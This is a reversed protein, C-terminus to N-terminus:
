ATEKTAECVEIQQGILKEVLSDLNKIASKVNAEMEAVQRGTLALVKRRSDIMRQVEMPAPGGRVTHMKVFNAVNVSMKVDGETVKLSLGSVEEAVERLMEATLDKPNLENEVIKRVLAGVIKHATRFPVNYKQFLIRVLETFTSFILNPNELNQIPECMVILKSLIRLAERTKAFSEWLKPTVEEFDLNYGSSLSKLALACTTFNGIVHSMRARVVELVDPNKKQPMISSTSCFEDPIEILNFEPTSWIILDEALRSIDTALMALVALAEMVFDRSSVADISNELVGAFGLLEAMMERSIPFSTTALAAAGMPCVNVRNYCETLREVHRQFVDFHYLLYHAFTIPQAPRLHTYGCTITQVHKEAKSLLGKQFGVIARILSILQERLEMRIATAVQDNRSKAIHLNEGAHGKARRIVAEEVYVHIDELYPKIKPKNVKKLAKLIEVGDENSIIKQQMLMVTHAKNIEIVHKLLKVDDKLSSIFRTVERKTSKIRGGKFLLSM